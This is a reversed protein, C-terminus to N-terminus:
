AVVTRRGSVFMLLDVRSSKRFASKNIVSIYLYSLRQSDRAFWVNWFRGQAVHMGHAHFCKFCKFCKHQPNTENPEQHFNNALEQAWGSLWVQLGQLACPFAHDPHYESYVGCLRRQIRQGVEVSKLVVPLWVPCRHFHLLLLHLMRPYEPFKLSIHYLLLEMEHLEHPCSELTSLKSVTFHSWTQLCWLTGCDKASPPLRAVAAGSQSTSSIPRLMRGCCTVWCTAVHKVQHIKGRNPSSCHQSCMRPKHIFGSTRCSSGSREKQM